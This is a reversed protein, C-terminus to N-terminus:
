GAPVLLPPPLPHSVEALLRQAETHNPQLKLVELLHTTAHEHQGAAIFTTAAGLHDMIKRGRDPAYRGYYPGFGVFRPGEAVLPLVWVSYAQWGVVGGVLLVAVILLAVSGELAKPSRLRVPSTEGNATIVTM